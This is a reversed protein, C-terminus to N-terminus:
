GSSESQRFQYQRNLRMLSVLLDPLSKVDVRKDCPAPEDDTADLNRVIAAERGSRHPHAAAHMQSGQEAGREAIDARMKRVRVLAVLASVTALEQAFDAPQQIFM